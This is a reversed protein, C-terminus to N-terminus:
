PVSPEQLTNAIPTVAPSQAVTEGSAPPLKSSWHNQNRLCELAVRWYGRTVQASRRFEPVAMLARHVDALRYAPVSPYLHHELHYHIGLPAIFVREFWTPLVTRTEAYVDCRGAIAFHDAIARIRLCLQLWTVFPVVWFLLVPVALGSAVILAAAGALFARRALVMAREDVEGSRAGPPIQNGFDALLLALGLGSLQVLLQGALRRGSQPFIWDPSQKARWDPDEATNLGRHHAAHTRRYDRMRVLVFPWSLAVETVWDNIRRDKCLRYHAGEHVLVLMAHQRSAIFAVVLVYLAPHWHRWALWASGVVMTWQFLVHLAGRFPTLQSLRRVEEPPLLRPTAPARASGSTPQTSLAASSTM